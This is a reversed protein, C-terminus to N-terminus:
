CSQSTGSRDPGCAGSRPPMQSQFRKVSTKPPPRSTKTLTTLGVAVSRSCARRVCPNIPICSAVKGRQERRCFWSKVHVFKTPASFHRQLTLVRHFTSVSPSSHQSAFVLACFRALHTDALWSSLHHNGTKCSSPANRNPIPGVM